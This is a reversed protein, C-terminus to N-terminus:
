LKTHTQTRKRVEGEILHELNLNSLKVTMDIHRHFVKNIYQGHMNTQKFLGNLNTFYM